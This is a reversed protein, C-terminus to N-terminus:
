DSVLSSEGNKGNTVSYGYGFQASVALKKETATLKKHFSVTKSSEVTIQYISIRAIVSKAISIKINIVPEFICTVYCGMNRPILVKSCWKSHRCVPM